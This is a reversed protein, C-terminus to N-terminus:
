IRTCDQIETYKIEKLHLSGQKMTNIIDFEM